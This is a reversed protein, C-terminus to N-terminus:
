RGANGSSVGAKLGTKKQPDSGTGRKKAKTRRKEKKEAIEDAKKQNQELIDSIRDRARSMCDSVIEDSLAALLDNAATRAEEM